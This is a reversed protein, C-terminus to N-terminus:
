AAFTTTVDAGGVTANVAVGVLTADPRVVASVHIDVSLLAHVALPAQLPATGILPVRVVVINVALASNMSVQVPDPPLAVCDVVTVANPLM